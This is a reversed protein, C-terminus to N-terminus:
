HAALQLQLALKCLHSKVSKQSFLLSLYENLIMNESFMSLKYKSTWYIVCHLWFM